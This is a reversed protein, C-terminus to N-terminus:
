EHRFISFAQLGVVGAYVKRAVVVEVPGERGGVGSRVRMM